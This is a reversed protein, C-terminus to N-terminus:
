ATDDKNARAVLMKFGQEAQNGGKQPKYNKNGLAAAVMRELMMSDPIGYLRDYAM